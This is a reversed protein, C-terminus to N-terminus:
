QHSKDSILLDIKDRDSKVIQLAEKIRRSTDGIFFDEALIRNLPCLLMDRVLM